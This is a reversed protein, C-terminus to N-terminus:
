EDNKQKHVIQRIDEKHKFVFQKLNEYNVANHVIYQNLLLKEADNIEEFLIAYEEPTPEKPHFALSLEISTNEPSYIFSIQASIKTKNYFRPLALALTKSLNMQTAIDALSINSTNEM